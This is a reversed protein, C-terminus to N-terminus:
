LRGELISDMLCLALVSEIVVVARPAICPDHRGAITLAKSEGTILDVTSQEKAISATPRFVTRFVIPMGNTIGGNIGGSHNTSSTINGNVKLWGDNAESGRMAAMAFGDGFEIGKTGPISFVLSTLSSELSEFFPSGLGAPHGFAACEVVGGISDGEESAKIIEEKMPGANSENILPFDSAGLKEFLAEDIKSFPEDLHKGIQLIHAGIRIGRSELVQRAIGGAFALPATLRGSFHGGGRHDNHGNFKIHATLDATGPRPLNKTYDKSRTDTNRIIGCLPAGTTVEELMGSLIEVEDDEKRKTSLIGGGPSRRAMHRKIETMDIGFGAPLGDIVIGIGGGHSEGFISLRLNRGWISSMSM